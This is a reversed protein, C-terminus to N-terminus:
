CAYRNVDVQALSPLKLRILGSLGAGGIILPGMRLDGQKEMFHTLSSRLFRARGEGV